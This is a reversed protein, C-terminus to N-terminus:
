KEMRNLWAVLLGAAAVGAGLTICFNRNKLKDFNPTTSMLEKTMKLNHFSIIAIGAITTMLGLTVKSDRTM